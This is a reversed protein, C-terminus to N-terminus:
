GHPSPGRFVLFRLLSMVLVVPLTCVQPSTPEHFPAVFKIKQNSAAASGIQLSYPQVVLCFGVSIHMGEDCQRSALWTFFTNCIIANHFVCVCVCVICVYMYVTTWFLFRYCKLRSKLLCQEIEIIKSVCIGLIHRWWSTTYDGVYIHSAM